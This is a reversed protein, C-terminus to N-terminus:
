ENSYKITIEERRRDDAVAVSTPSKSIVIGDLLPAAVNLLNVSRLVVSIM